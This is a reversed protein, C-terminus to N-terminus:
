VEPTEEVVWSGCESLWLVFEGYDNYTIKLRVVGDESELTEKSFVKYYLTYVHDGTQRGIVMAVEEDCTNEIRCGADETLYEHEQVEWKDEDQNYGYYYLHPYTFMVVVEKSGDEFVAGLATAAELMERTPPEGETHNHTVLVLEDVTPHWLDVPEGLSDSSPATGGSFIVFAAVGGVLALLVVQIKKM